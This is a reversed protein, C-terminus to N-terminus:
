GPARAARGRAGGCTACTTARCCRATGSSTRGSRSARFGWCRRSAKPSSPWCSRTPGSRPAAAARRGATHAAPGRGGAASEISSSFLTGLHMRGRGLCSTAFGDLARWRSAGGRPQRLGGVRGAHGASPRSSRRVEQLRAASPRRSWGRARSAPRRLATAVPQLAAHWGAGERPVVVRTGVCGRVRACRACRDARGARGGAHVSGAARAAAAAASRRRRAAGEAGFLQRAGGGVGAPFSRALAAGSRRRLHGDRASGRPAAAGGRGAPAARLRWRAQLCGARARWARHARAGARRCLPPSWSARRAAACLAAAGAVFRKASAM